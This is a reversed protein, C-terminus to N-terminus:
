ILRTTMTHSGSKNLSSDSETINDAITHSGSKNLSSDSETINDAKTHSGSKNLSSDSETINDAITHSGSKYTKLCDLKQYSLGLGFLFFFLLSKILSNTIYRNPSEEKFLDPLWV